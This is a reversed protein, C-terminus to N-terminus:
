LQHFVSHAILASVHMAEGAIPDHRHKARRDRELIRRKPSAPRRKGNKLPQFGNAAIEFSLM